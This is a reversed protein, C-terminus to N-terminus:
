RPRPGSAAVRCQALCQRAGTDCSARGPARSRPPRMSAVPARAPRQHRHARHGPQSASARPRVGPLPSAARGRATRGLYSLENWTWHRLPRRLPCPRVSRALSAAGIRSRDGRSQPVSRTSSRLAPRRAASAVAAPRAAIMVSGLAGSRGAASAAAPRAIQRRRVSPRAPRDDARGRVVPAGGSDSDRPPQSVRQPVIADSGPIGGGAGADPGRKFSAACCGCETSEAGQDNPRSPARCPDPRPSMLSDDGPISAGARAPVRTASACPARTRASLRQSSRSFSADM